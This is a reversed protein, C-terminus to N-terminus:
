FILFNNTLNNILSNSNQMMAHTYKFKIITLTVLKIPTNLDTVPLTLLDNWEPNLSRTVVRTKLKQM